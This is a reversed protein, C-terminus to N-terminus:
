TSVGAGFGAVGSAGGGMTFGAGAGAGAGGSAGDSTDDGADFNFGGGAIVTKDPVIIGGAGDGTSGVLKSFGVGAQGRAGAGRQPLPAAACLGTVLLLLIAKSHM